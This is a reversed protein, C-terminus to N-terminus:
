FGVNMGTVFVWGDQDDGNGVDEGEIDRLLLHADVDVGGGLAYDFGLLIQNGETDRGDNATEEVESTNYSIGVTYPGSAYNVGIAATWGDGGPVAQAESDDSTEAYSLGFTFGGTSIQTGAQWLNLDTNANGTGGEHSIYGASVAVDVDGHTAVYNAGVSVTDELASNEGNGDNVNADPAYGVGLQFGGVRPTYYAMHDIDSASFIGNDNLFSGSFESVAPTGVWQSFGHTSLGFNGVYLGGSYHMKYNPM